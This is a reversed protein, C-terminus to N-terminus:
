QNDSTEGGDADQGDQPMERTLLSGVSGVLAEFIGSTKEGKLTSMVSKKTDSDAKRYLEVLKKETATLKLDSDSTKKASSTASTEKKATGTKKSSGDKKNSATEKKAATETKDVAAELLSKQTVGTAKAIARLQAMTLEKQGREAASIDKATLGVQDALAAQTLKANARAEKILAGVKNEAM